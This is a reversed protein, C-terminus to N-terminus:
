NVTWPSGSDPDRVEALRHTGHPASRSSMPCKGSVTASCRSQTGFCAARSDLLDSADRMRHHPRQGDAARGDPSDPRGAAGSLLHTMKSGGMRKNDHISLDCLIPLLADGHPPPLNNNSKVNCFRIVLAANKSNFTSNSLKRLARPLCCYM